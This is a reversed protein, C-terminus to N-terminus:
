HKFVFASTSNVLFSGLVLTEGKVRQSRHGLVSTETAPEATTAEVEQRIRLGGTQCPKMLGAPGAPNRGRRPRGCHGEPECLAIASQATPLVRM